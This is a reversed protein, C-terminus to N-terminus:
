LLFPGPKNGRTPDPGAAHDSNWPSLSGSGMEGHLQRLAELAHKADVHASADVAATRYPDHGADFFGCGDAGDEGVEFLVARQLFRLVVPGSRAAWRGHGHGCLRLIPWAGWGRFGVAM